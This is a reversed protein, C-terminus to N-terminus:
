NDRYVLVPCHAHTTCHQSVSGILMGAFEGHGRSGVVLVSAGKSEDVLIPSPHGQVVRTKVVLDPWEAHLEATCKELLLEADVDPQLGARVPVSWGLSQPWDWAVIVDLYGGRLEAYGAAWRLAQKSAPSGDVGVLIRNTPGEIKPSTM